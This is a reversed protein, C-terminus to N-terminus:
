KLLHYCKLLRFIESDSFDGFLGRVKTLPLRNKLFNKQYEEITMLEEPHFIHGIAAVYKFLKEAPCVIEKVM